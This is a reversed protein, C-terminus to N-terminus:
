PLCSTVLLLSTDPMVCALGSFRSCQAPSKLVSELLTVHRHKIEPLDNKRGPIATAQVCFIRFNQHNGDHRFRSPLPQRAFRTQYIIVSFM